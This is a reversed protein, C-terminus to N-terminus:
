KAAHKLSITLDFKVPAGKDGERPSPSVVVAYVGAREIDGTFQRNGVTASDHRVEGPWKGPAYLVFDANQNEPKLVVTLIHGKKASFRYMVPADSRTEDTISTTDTGPEFGVGVVRTDRPFPAAFATSLTFLLMAIITVISKM